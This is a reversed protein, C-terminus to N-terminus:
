KAPNIKLLEVDFILASNPEIVPPAGVEGYALNAPIYFRYKSGESMLQLGETWGAIVGDLKFTVPESGENSDFVKGDILTGKYNVSVIDTAKPKTGSGESIVEYQLGSATTQVGQKKANEALFAKGKELNVAATESIKQQMRKQHETQFEMVATEMQEPTLAADKKNFADSFGKIIDAQNLNDANQLNSGISYGISYGAKELMSSQENITASSNTLNNTLNSIKAVQPNDSFSKLFVPTLAVAGLIVAVVVAVAKNSM